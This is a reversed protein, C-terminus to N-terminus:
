WFWWIAWDTLWHESSQQAGFEWNHWYFHWAWWGAMPGSLWGSRHRFVTWGLLSSHLELALWQPFPLLLSIKWPIFSIVILNCEIKYALSTFIDIKSMNAVLPRTYVKCVFLPRSATSYDLVICTPIMAPHLSDFLPVFPYLQITCWFFLVARRNKNCRVSLKRLFGQRGCKIYQVHVKFVPVPMHWMKHLARMDSAQTQLCCCGKKPKQGREIWELGQKPM